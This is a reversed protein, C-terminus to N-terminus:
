ILHRIAIRKDGYEPEDIYPGINHNKLYKRRFFQRFYQRKKNLSSGTESFFSWLM